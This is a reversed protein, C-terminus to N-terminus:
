KHGVQWSLGWQFAHDADRHGSFYRDVRTVKIQGQENEILAAVCFKKSDDTGELKIQLPPQGQIHITLTGDTSSWNAAGEYIFTYVLVRKIKSWQDGNIRLWEGDTSEGTRDDGDLAIYPARHQDGFSNGLAQIASRQGDQLEYLCGLDLDVAQHHGFLGGLLGKKGQSWNLNIAIEGVRESKTLDIKRTPNTKDLSIM